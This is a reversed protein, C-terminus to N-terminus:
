KRSKSTKRSKSMSRARSKSYSRSRSKAVKRLSKSRTKRSKLESHIMRVYDRDALYIKADEPHTRKDYVAIANLKRIMSLSGYKKVAKDIAAHREKEPLDTDYGFKTLQHKKLPGIGMSQNEIQWLRSKMGRDEICSAPVKSGEVHTGDERTFSKRTYAKRKMTGSPCGKYVSLVKSVSFKRSTASKGHKMRYHQACLGDKIAKRTCHSGDLKHASCDTM